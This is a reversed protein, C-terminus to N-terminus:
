SAAAPGGGERRAAHVDIGQRADIEGAAVQCAVYLRPMRACCPSPSAGAVDYEANDVILRRACARKSLRRHFAAQSRWVLPGSRRSGLDLDYVVGRASRTWTRIFPERRRESRCSAAKARSSHQRSRADRELRRLGAGGRGTRRAARTIHGRRCSRWRAGSAQRRGSRRSPGGADSLLKLHQIALQGLGGCGIVIGRHRHVPAHGNRRSPRAHTLSANHRREAVSPSGAGAPFASPRGCVM